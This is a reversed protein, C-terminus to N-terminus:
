YTNKYNDVWTPDEMDNLLQFAKEGYIFDSIRTFGYNQLLIMQKGSPVSIPFNPFQPDITDSSWGIEAIAPKFPYKVYRIKWLDYVINKNEVDYKEFFDISDPNADCHVEGTAYSMFTMLSILNIEKVENNPAYIFAFQGVSNYSPIIRFGLYYDTENEDGFIQSKSIQVFSIVLIITFFINKM